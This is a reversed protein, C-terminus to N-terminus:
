RSLTGSNSAQREGLTANEPNTSHPVPLGKPMGKGRSGARSHQSGRNAGRSCPQEATSAAETPEEAAQEATSAAETPEEAEAEAAAAERTHAIEAPLRGTEDIHHSWISLAELLQVDTSADVAAEAVRDAERVAEAAREAEAACVLMGHVAGPIGAWVDELAM